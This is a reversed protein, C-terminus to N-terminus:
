QENLKRLEEVLKEIGQGMLASIACVREGKKSFLNVLRKLREKDILDIKNLVVIRKKKLLDPNFACLEERLTEYDNLPDESSADIVFILCKTREIHKLFRLGLGKGKSAGKIIGPIDAVVISEDDDALVGLNPSLTTFPYDAIKPRARSIQSVITSKGVNPLGVLGCDAILKLVLRLRKEEGKEGYEFRTPAQNHPTAFRANGRGGKGGKAVTIEDEEKLIEGLPILGDETEEFVLTGLPVKIVLDKGDRGKKNNGSGPKGNQAKFIRKYKFDLLSFLNRQGKLIVDGGKGGDGGDPGGKPVYKERRFSLCGRGGDGAKVYISVEDIFRM